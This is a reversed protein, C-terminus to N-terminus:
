VFAHLQVGRARARVRQVDFVRGVCARQVDRVPQGDARPEVGVLPEEVRDARVPHVPRQLVVNVRRVVHAVASGVCCGVWGGWLVGRDHGVVRHHLRRAHWVAAVGYDVLAPQEYVASVTHEGAHEFDGVLAFRERQDVCAGCLQRQGRAALVGRAGDLACDHPQARRRASAMKIAERLRAADDHAGDFDSANVKVSLVGNPGIAARCARCVDVLVRTRSGYADNRDNSAGLFQSLLYGHAAHVQVGDFGSRVAIRAARGFAKILDDVEQTTMTVPTRHLQPGVGGLRFSRSSCSRPRRWSAAVPSQRGPHSLQVLVLAGGSKASRAWHSVQKTDTAGDFVVNRPAELARRDVMVNGTIVLGWGGAAWRGYLATLLPTADNTRADGLHESTAVKCLRNNLTRGCRLALPQDM